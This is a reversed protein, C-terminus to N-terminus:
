ELDTKLRPVRYSRVDFAIEATPFSADVSTAQLKYEGGATGEPITWSFPWTGREGNAMARVVVEGGPARISFLAARVTQEPARTFADLLAARAYVTEGPKYLPKDTALHALLRHEALQIRPKDEAHLRWVPLALACAAGVLAANRLTLAPM